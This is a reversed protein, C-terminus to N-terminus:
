SWTPPEPLGKAPAGALLREIAGEIDDISV